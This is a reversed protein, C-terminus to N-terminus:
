FTLLLILMLALTAATISDQAQKLGLVGSFLIIPIFIGTMVWYANHCKWVADHLNNYNHLLFERDAPAAAPVETCNEPNGNM